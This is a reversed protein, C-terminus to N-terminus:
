VGAYEQKGGSSHGFFFTFKNRIVKSLYTAHTETLVAMDVHNKYLLVEPDERNHVVNIGRINLNPRKLVRCCKCDHERFNWKLRPLDLEHGVFARM